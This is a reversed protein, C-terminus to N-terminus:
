VTPTWCAVVYSELEDWLVNIQQTDPHSAWGHMFKNLANYELMGDSQTTRDLVRQYVSDSILNAKLMHHAATAIRKHTAGGKDEIGNTEYYRMTSLEILMRFLAAVALPTKRSSLVRLEAVVNAVKVQDRPVSFGAANGRFLKDRDWSAKAPGRPRGPPKTSEGETTAVDKGDTETGQNGAAGATNPSSGKPEGGNNTSTPTKSGTGEAQGAAKELGVVVRVREVYADAQDPKFVDSVGVTGRKGFDHAITKAVHLAVEVAVSPVVKDDKEEFGLRQLNKKTLMRTVNTLPFDDPLTVGHEDAWLFLMAARKNQEPLGHSTLFFTRMLTSWVLQGAGDLGGGHRSVVERVLSDTDTSALVEVPGIAQPYQKRLAEFRKRLQANPALSPNDLLKLATVRRNGDWVIYQGDANPQVLLPATSLGNEAIDKALAVLQDEKGNAIRSICDAQDAGARIRANSM